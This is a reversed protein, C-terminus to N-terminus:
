WSPAQERGAHEVASALRLRCTIHPLVGREQPSPWVAGRAMRVSDTEAGSIGKGGGPRHNNGEKKETDEQEGEREGTM